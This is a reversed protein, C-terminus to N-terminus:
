RKKVLENNGLGIYKREDVDSPCSFNVGDTDMVLPDYSKSM